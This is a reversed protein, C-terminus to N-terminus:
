QAAVVVPNRLFASLPVAGGTAASLRGAMELSPEKKWNVIESLYATSCGVAQAVAIRSSHAEIWLKLPHPSDSM